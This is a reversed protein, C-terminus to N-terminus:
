QSLEMEDDDDNDCIPTQIFKAGSISGSESKWDTGNGSDEGGRSERWKKKKRGDVSGTFRYFVLSVHAWAEITYVTECVM